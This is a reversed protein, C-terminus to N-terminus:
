SSAAEDALREMSRGGTGNAHFVIVEDGADELSRRIQQVCPTTVGFMTAARWRGTRGAM